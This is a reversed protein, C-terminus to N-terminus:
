TGQKRPAPAWPGKADPFRDKLSLPGAVLAMFDCRGARPTALLYQTHMQAPDRCLVEYEAKDYLIHFRPTVLVPSNRAGDPRQIGAVALPDVRSFCVVDYNAGSDVWTVAPDLAIAALERRFWDARPEIALLPAMSGLTVFGVEPIGEFAERRRMLARGLASIAVTTGVSHGIVLFEDVEGEAALDAIAAAMEDMRAQMLPSEDYILHTYFNNLQGRWLVSGKELRRLMIPLGAFGLLGALLGWTWSLGALAFGIVAPVAAALYLGAFIGFIVAVPQFLTLLYLRRVRYLRAFYGISIGRMITRLTDQIFPWAAKPWLERAVDDWRLFDFRTEVEAAAGKLPLNGTVPWEVVIDSHKRRNGLTFAVDPGHSAAAKPAEDRWLQHYHRAGRPDFGSVFVVRRRRVRDNM